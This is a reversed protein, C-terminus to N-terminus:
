LQATNREGGLRAVLSIIGPCKHVVACNYYKGQRRTEESLVTSELEAGREATVKMREGVVFTSDRCRLFGEGFMGVIDFQDQLEGLRVGGDPFVFFCYRGTRAAEFDVRVIDVQQHLAAM